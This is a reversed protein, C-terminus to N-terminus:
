CLINKVKNGLDYYFVMSDVFYAERERHMAVMITKTATEQNYLNKAVGRAHARLTALVLVFTKQWAGQVKYDKKLLIKYFNRFIDNFIIFNVFFLANKLGLQYSLWQFRNQNM